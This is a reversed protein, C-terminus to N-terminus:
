FLLEAKEPSTQVPTTIPNKIPYHTVPDIPDVEEQQLKISLLM